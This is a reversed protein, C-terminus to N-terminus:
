STASQNPRATWGEYYVVNGSHKEEKEKSTNMQSRIRDYENLNSCWEKYEKRLEKMRKEHQERLQERTVYPASAHTTKVPYTITVRAVVEKRHTNPATEGAGGSTKVADYVLALVFALALFSFTIM